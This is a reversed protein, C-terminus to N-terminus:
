RMCCNEPPPPKEPLQIAEGNLYVITKVEPVTTIYPKEEVAPEFPISIPTRAIAPKQEIILSKKPQELILNWYGSYNPVRKYHIFRVSM